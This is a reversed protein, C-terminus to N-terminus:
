SPASPIALEQSNHKRGKKRGKIWWHNFAKPYGRSRAKWNLIPMEPPPKPNVTKPFLKTSAKHTKSREAIKKNRKSSRSMRSNGDQSEHSKPVENHPEIWDQLNKLHNAM